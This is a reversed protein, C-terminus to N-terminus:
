RKKSALAALKSDEQLWIHMQAIFEMPLLDLSSVDEATPLPLEEGTEPHEFHWAKICDILLGENEKRVQEALKPDSLLKDADFALGIKKKGEGYSFSDVKRLDVWFEECGFEAFTHHVIQKKRYENWGM